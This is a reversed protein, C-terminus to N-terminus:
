EFTLIRKQNEDVILIGDLSANAQAEIFRSKSKLENMLQLHESIDQISEIAGITNGFQDYIPLAMTYVWAGKNNYLAPCFVEAKIVDGERTLKSYRSAIQDDDQFILDMLQPQAEGCFPISYAYAGKGIMETAPIGTMTEIDNNWIIVRKENDIALIADPLFEIIDSLKRQYTQLNVKEQANRCFDNSM